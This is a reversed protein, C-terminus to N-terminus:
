AATEDERQVIPAFPAYGRCLNLSDEPTYQPHLRLSLLLRRMGEGVGWNNRVGDVDILLPFPGIVEDLQAMWNSSKADWHYLGVAELKRLLAGTRHFLLQRNNAWLSDLDITALSPGKVKEFVIISDTVYGLIRKEMLLMPWACPIGRYILRWSKWWARRARSGRGLENLYRYWYRRRPRKIIVEVPRGGLVVEGELVDGSASRKIVKLQDADMKQLLLPWQQQWQQAHIEMQSVRSWRYGRATKLFCAGQWGEGAVKGFYKNEGYIRSMQKRYVGRAYRNRRPMQGGPGLLNWGRQLDTRTAFGGASNALQMVDRLLMGRQHVPYADILFVKGEQVLFNGLHLDAHGLGAQGMRQVIDLVQRVLDLHNPVPRGTIEQELVLDQLSPAPEIAEILVADGRQGHITLGMLASIARAAPVKAKQLLQLRTFERMALSGRGMRRWFNNERPYFKLYFVEDGVAVRWVRRYPYDKVLKGYQDLNKIAKELIEATMAEFPDDGFGAGISTIAAM